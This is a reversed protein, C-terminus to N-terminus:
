ASARDESATSHPRPADSIEAVPIQIVMAGIVRGHDDHLLTGTVEVKTCKGSRKRIVIPVRDVVEGRLVRHLPVEDARLLRVNDADYLRYYEAWQEAPIDLQPLGHLKRTAKNFYRLVGRADCMVVSEITDLARHAAEDFTWQPMNHRRVVQSDPSDEQFPRLKSIDRALLDLETRVQSEVPFGHVLLSIAQLRNRAYHQFLVRDRNRHIQLIVAWLTLGSAIVGAVANDVWHAKPLVQAVVASGLAVVAGILLATYM